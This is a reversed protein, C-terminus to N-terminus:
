VADDVEAMDAFYPSPEQHCDRLRPSKEHYSVRLYDKARTLAVYFLRREEEKRGERASKPYPVTVSSCGIVFVCPWELGKASHMTLLNVANKNRQKDGQQILAIDALYNVLSPNSESDEYQEMGGCLVDLNEMRLALKPKTKRQADAETQLQARFGSEKTIGNAIVGLREGADLMRGYKDLLKEFEYLMAKAKKNSPKVIRAAETIPIGREKAVDEIKAVLVNGVHRKPHSIARKFANKDSPNILLTMYALATKIEGRCFFSLGGKVVYPIKRNALVQEFAQSLSNVRYIVAMDKYEYGKNRYEEIRYVVDRAEDRDWEYAGATVKGGSGRESFITVDKADSNKRILNEAVSLIESNSRYNKPLVIEVTEPFDKKFQKLNEPKAGRWSFISQQYDGVMFLNGHESVLLKAIAYQIDNMDQAEDVMLYQYKESLRRTKEPFRTLIKWALYMMGSFDVANSDILEKIYMKIRDEEEELKLSTGSERIADLRKFLKDRDEQSLRNEKDKKIGNKKLWSDHVRGMIVKTDDQDWISFGANLGVDKGHNMLLRLCLQHFTSVWTGRARPDSLTIREKMEKAAKNTFTVCCINRSNVGKDVLGM